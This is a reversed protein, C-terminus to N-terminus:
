ESTVAASTLAKLAAVNEPSRGVRLFGDREGSDGDTTLKTFFEPLDKWRLAADDGEVWEWSPDPARSWLRKSVWVARGAEWAGLAEEAFQQRWLEARKTSVEVIDYLRMPAPRNASCFLARNLTLSLSDHNNLVAVLDRRDAKQLLQDIRSLAASDERAIRPGFMSYVNTAAMAALFMWIAARRGRGAAGNERLVWGVAVIVFPYAPLYREPSGPEFVFVAFVLVPAAAVALWVKPWRQPCKMLGRILWYLFLFFAAIKWLSALALDVASVPAYPDRHWFRRYQVGDEGLFLFSRPLGTGLRILRHDQSWGHGATKVWDVLKAPTDMHAFHAGALYTGGTLLVFIAVFLRMRRMRVGANGWVGPGAFAAAALAPVALVYPLWLLTAIAAAAASGAVAEAKPGGESRGRVLLWLALSVFFVGPVYSAGAHSYSLVANSCAFAAAVGFAVRGSGTLRLLTSHWLLVSAAAAGLSLTVLLASAAQSISWGTLAQVLPGFLELIGWGLPRWLLHGCEWLNAAPLKHFSPIIQSVYVTTDGLYYGRTWAGLAAALALLAGRAKLVDNRTRQQSKLETPLEPADILVSETPMPATM